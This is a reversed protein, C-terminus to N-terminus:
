IYSIGTRGMRGETFIHNKKPPHDVVMRQHGLYRGGRAQRIQGDEYQVLRYDDMYLAPKRYFKFFMKERKGKLHRFKWRGDRKAIQFMGM